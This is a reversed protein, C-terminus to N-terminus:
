SLLLSCTQTNDKYNNHFKLNCWWSKNCYSLCTIQMAEPALELGAWSGSTWTWSTAWELLWLCVWLCSTRHSVPEHVSLHQWYHPVTTYDINCKIQQATLYRLQCALGCTNCYDVKFITWLSGSKMDSCSFHIALNVSYPLICKWAHLM